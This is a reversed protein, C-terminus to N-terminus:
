FYAYYKIYDAVSFSWHPALQIVYQVTVYQVTVYQVTVYQVTVYQVTVYQVTVYQVTIRHVTGTTTGRRLQIKWSQFLRFIYFVM